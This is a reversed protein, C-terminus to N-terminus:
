GVLRKTFAILELPNFPKTLFGDVNQRDCPLDAPNSSKATMGIIKMTSRLPDHRLRDLLVVGGSEPARLDVVLLAPPENQLAPWAAESSTLADARYDAWELHTKPWSGVPEDADVILVRVPEPASANSAGDLAM